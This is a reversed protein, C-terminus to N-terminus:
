IISNFGIIRDKDVILVKSEVLKSISPQNLLLEDSNVRDVGSTNSENRNIENKSNGLFILYYITNSM